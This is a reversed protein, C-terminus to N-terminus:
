ASGQVGNIRAFKLWQKIKLVVEQFKEDDIFIDDGEKYWNLLQCKEIKKLAIGAHHVISIRILRIDGMIPSVVQNKDIAYEAAINSRHFDEWYQYLTVLAMNGLFKQNVGSKSNRAKFDGQTCRHLEISAPDSPDGKGYTMALSDLYKLNARKPDTKRLDQITSAQVKHFNKLLYDLGSSSHLFVGYVHDVLEEFQNLSQM